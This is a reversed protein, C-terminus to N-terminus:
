TESVVVLCEVTGSVLSVVIAVVELEKV